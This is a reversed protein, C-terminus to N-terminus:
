GPGLSAADSSTRQARAAWAWIGASVLIAVPVIKVAQALSYVDSIKGILWPSPVDGLCHIAFVGLANASARETPRVLNVISANIPGTSLFMCLQAVIMCVLYFSTSGTTLAM